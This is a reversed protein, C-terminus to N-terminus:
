KSRMWGSFPSSCPNKARAFHFIAACVPKEARLTSEARAPRFVTRAFRFNARAFRFNAACLPFRGRLGSEARAFGVGQGRLASKRGAFQIEPTTL